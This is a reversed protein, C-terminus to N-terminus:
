ISNEWFLKVEKSKVEKGSKVEKSKVEKGQFYWKGCSNSNGVNIIYVINWIGCWVIVIENEVVLIINM